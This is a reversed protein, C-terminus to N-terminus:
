LYRATAMALVAIIMFISGVMGSAKLRSRLADIRPMFAGRAEAPSQAMEAGLKSMRVMTPKIVIVGILFAIIAAIMGAAIGSGFPSRFWSPTFGASDRNVLELGALITLLGTTLVVDFYHRRNMEQVVRIGDPGTAALSPGVLFNMFLVGGAWFVGCGIHVIRLIILTAM